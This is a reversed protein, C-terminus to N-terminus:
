TSSPTNSPSASPSASPTDSPTDSPTVEPTSGDSNNLKSELVSIRSHLDKIISILQGTNNLTINNVQAGNWDIEVANLSKSIEDGTLTTDFKGTGDDNASLSFKGGAAYINSAQVNTFNINNQTITAM